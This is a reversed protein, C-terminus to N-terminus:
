DPLQLDAVTLMSLFYRSDYARELIMSASLSSRGNALPDFSARLRRPMVAKVNGRTANIYTMRSKRTAATPHTNRKATSEARQYLSNLIGQVQRKIASVKDPPAVQSQTRSRKAFEKWSFAQQLHLYATTLPIGEIICQFLTGKSEPTEM